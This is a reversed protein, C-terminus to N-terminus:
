ITRSFYNINVSSDLQSVQKITNIMCDKIPIEFKTINDMYIKEIIKGDITGGISCVRPNTVIHKQLTFQTVDGITSNYMQHHKDRGIIIFSSHFREHLRPDDMLLTILEWFDDIYYENRENGMQSLVHDLFYETSEVFGAFGLIINHNIKRTKNYHESYCGDKGARGDSMIIANDKNAYGLILSM